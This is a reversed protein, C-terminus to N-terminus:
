RPPGIRGPSDGVSPGDALRAAFEARYRARRQERAVRRRRAVLAQGAGLLMGLAISLIGPAVLGRAAMLYVGWGAFLALPLAGPPGLRPTLSVLAGTPTLRFLERLTVGLLRLIRRPTQTPSPAPTPTPTRAARPTPTSRHVM